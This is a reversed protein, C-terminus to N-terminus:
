NDQQALLKKIESEPLYKKRDITQTKLGYKRVYRSVTVKGVGFMQSVEEFDYLKIGLIIKM